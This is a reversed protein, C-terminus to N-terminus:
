PCELKNTDNPLPNSTGGLIITVSGVIVAKVPQTM